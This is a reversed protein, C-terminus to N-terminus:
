RAGVFHEFLAVGDEMRWNAELASNECFTIGKSDANENEVHLDDVMLFPVPDTVHTRVSVPTYHDTVVLLRVDPFRKAGEVLPKVVHKDFAEIAEMKKSLSGEHGTEDPAEIHVYVLDGEDLAKLSAEVKGAYNTDLYGTAGPVSVAKLGAYVGLGKLLDV